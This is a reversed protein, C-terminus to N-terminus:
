QRSAVNLIGANERIIAIADEITAVHANALDEGIFELQDEDLLTAQMAVAFRGGIIPTIEISVFQLPLPAPATTGAATDFTM